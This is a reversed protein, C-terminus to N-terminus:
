RQLSNVIEGAPSPGASSEMFEGASNKVLAYKQLSNVVEGAVCPGVSNAVLCWGQSSNM